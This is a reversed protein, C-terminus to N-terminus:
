ILGPLRKPRMISLDFAYYTLVNSAPWILFNRKLDYQQLPAGVGPAGTKFSLIGNEQSPYTLVARSLGVTSVQRKVAFGSMMRADKSDRALRFPFM